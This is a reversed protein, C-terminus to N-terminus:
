SYEYIGNKLKATTKSFTETEKRGINRQINSKQEMLLNKARLTKKEIEQQEWQTMLQNTNRNLIPEASVKSFSRLSRLVDNLKGRTLIEKKIQGYEVPEPLYLKNEETQLERITKNFNSVARGLTLYDSRKWKIQSKM